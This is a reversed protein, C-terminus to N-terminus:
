TGYKVRHTYAILLVTDHSYVANSHIHFQKKKKKFIIHLLATFMKSISCTKTSIHTKKKEPYTGLLISSDCPFNLSKIVALNELAAVGNPM